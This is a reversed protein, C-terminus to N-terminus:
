AAHIIGEKEDEIAKRVVGLADLIIVVKGDGLISAGAIMGSRSMESQLSKIVLEQQGAIRDVLLGVRRSGLRLILAFRKEPGSGGVKFLREARILSITRDRLILTDKGGMTTLESLSVKTIEAVASLPLAYLKEGVQFLLARIMALTLPLRLRVMTGKGPTSQLELLGRMGEVANKVADMGVGRGSTETVTEATSLGPVFVLQAAEAETMRGAEEASVLGKGRAREKLKETDIGRGDDQTEVVIQAAEHYARVFILGEAPKGARLREEPRELGHDIMNRLIHALPEALGDVIAKDLETEKGSLELRAQKGKEASLDRVMRPFKRLIQNIPVMRMKMVGRQIDKITRELYANVEGIRAAGDYAGAARMEKVAEAVMSRGIMLEGVLNLLRDVRGAEIRLFETRVEPQLARSEAGANTKSEAIPTGSEARFFDRVQVESVIGAVVGARAIEERDRDTALVAAIRDGAGIGEEAEDPVSHIIRGAEAFRALAMGAAISKEACQPHILAEVQYVRLGNRAAERAQLEQYESLSIGRLGNLRNSGNLGNLFLDIKDPLGSREDSEGGSEGKALLARLEDVSSLLLEMADHRAENNTFVALVDEMRHCLGAASSLGVSGSDGKLTHIHRKVQRLADGDGPDEELKLLEDQITDVLEYASGYFVQKLEAQEADSWAGPGDTM